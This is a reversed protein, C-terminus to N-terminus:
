SLWPTLFIVLSHAKQPLSHTHPTHITGLHTHRFLVACVSLWVSLWGHFWFGLPKPVILTCFLAPRAPTTCRRRTTTKHHTTHHPPHSVPPFLAPTHFESTWFLFYETRKSPKGLVTHSLHLYFLSLCYDGFCFKKWHFISIKWTHLYIPIGNYRFINFFGFQMMRMRMMRRVDVCCCGGLTNFPIQFFELSWLIEMFAWNTRM